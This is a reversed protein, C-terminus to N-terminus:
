EENVSICVSTVGEEGYLTSIADFIIYWESVPELAVRHVYAEDGACQQTRIEVEIYGKKESLNVAGSGSAHLNKGHSSM